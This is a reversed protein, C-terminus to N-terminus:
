DGNVNNSEFTDFGAAESAVQIVVSQNQDRADHTAMDLLRDKASEKYPTWKTQPEDDILYLEGVVWDVIYFPDPVKTIDTTSTLGSIDTGGSTTAMSTSYYPFPVSYVGAPTPQINLKYGISKNGTIWVFPSQSDYNLTEPYEVLKYLLGNILINGATDVIGSGREYDAPLNVYSQGGTTSLTPVTLLFSWQGNLYRRVTDEAQNILATRRAYEDSTSLIGSGSYDFRATIALQLQDLTM